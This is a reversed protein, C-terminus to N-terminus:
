CITNRYPEGVRYRELERNVKDKALKTISLGLAENAIAIAIDFQRLEAYAAAQIRLCLRHLWDGNLRGTSGELQLVRTIDRLAGPGDRFLPEPCTAKLKARSRLAHKNDPELELANDLHVIATAYDRKGIWWSGMQAFAEADRPNRATKEEFQELM